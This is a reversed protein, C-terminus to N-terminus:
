IEVGEKIAQRVIGWERQKEQFEQPTYCLPELLVLGEWLDSVEHLREIWKMGEFKKSVIVMDVDSEILYDGRARSGFILIKQPSYKKEIIKVFNEIWEDVKKDTIKDM